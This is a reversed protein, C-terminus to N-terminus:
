KKIVPAEWESKRPALVAVIAFLLTTTQPM